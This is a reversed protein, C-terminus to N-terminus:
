LASKATDFVVFVSDLSPVLGTSWAGDKVRGRDEGTWVDTVTATSSTINLEALTITTSTNTAGGNLFLAATKGSGLPKAWLQVGAVPRQGGVIWSTYKMDSNARAAGWPDKFHLRLISADDVDATTSNRSFSQKKNANSCSAPYPTEATIGGCHAHNEVLFALWCRYVIPLDAPTQLNCCLSSLLESCWNVGEIVTMNAAYIDGGPMQGVRCKTDPPLAEPGHAEFHDAPPLTRVLTGPHGDWAQNVAMAGKNGIIDLIPTLNEDSPYISLVLPSSIICFAAFHTRTWGEYQPPVPCGSTRSSCGLRGVQLMDPYAWCGPVSLPADWDQFRVTTQLNDFWTGLKNNSDGSTRYRRFVAAPATPALLCCCILCFLM